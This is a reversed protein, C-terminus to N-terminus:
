GGSLIARVAKAGVDRVMTKAVGRFCETIDYPGLSITHGARLWGFLARVKKAQRRLSNVTFKERGREAPARPSGGGPILNTLNHLGIQNILAAEASYAEAELAHQSIVSKQVALGAVWIDRIRDCKPHDVGKAAEREHADVRNRQGKGVYFTRGDRPDNLAYVYYKM